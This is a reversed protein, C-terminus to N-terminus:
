GGGKSGVPGAQVFMKEGAMKGSHLLTNTPLTSCLTDTCLSFWIAFTYWTMTQDMPGRHIASGMVAM